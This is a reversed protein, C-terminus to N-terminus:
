QSPQAAGGLFTGAVSALGGGIAPAAGGTLGTIAGQVLGAIVTKLLSAAIGGFTDLISKATEKLFSHAKASGVIKVALGLTEISDLKTRYIDEYQRAKNEDKEVIAKLKFEGAEKFLTELRDKHISEVFSGFSAMFNERTKALLVELQPKAVDVVQDQLSM